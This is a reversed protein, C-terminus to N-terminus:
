SSKKDKIAQLVREPTLPFSNLEVGVADAVANALAPAVAIMPQEGVGRLGLPGDKEPTELVFGKLYPTNEITPIKYDTFNPNLIRGKDLKVEEYLATGLGMITGGHVQIMCQQPNVAQGADMATALQLITIEGTEPDVEVE